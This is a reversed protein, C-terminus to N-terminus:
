VAPQGAQEAIASPKLPNATCRAFWSTIIHATDRAGRALSSPYLARIPHVNGQADENPLAKLASKLTRTVSSCCCSPPASYLKSRSPGNVLLSPDALKAFILPVSSAVYTRSLGPM